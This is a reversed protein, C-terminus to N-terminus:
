RGRGKLHKEITKHLADGRLETDKALIAGTDGDVLFAAPIGTVSYSAAIREGGNQIQEWTMNKQGLFRKVITPSGTDLTVGVIEFGQDRFKAYAKVLHPIEGQCPGCWTAWFDLLM